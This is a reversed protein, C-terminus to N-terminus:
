KDDSHQRIGRWLRGVSLRQELWVNRRRTREANRLRHFQGSRVTCRVASRRLAFSLSRNRDGGIRTIPRSSEDTVTVSTGAGQFLGRMGETRYIKQFADFMGDYVRVTTQISLRTRVLDLPYTFLVSTVGACSGAIM